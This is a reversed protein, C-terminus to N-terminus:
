ANAEQWARTIREFGPLVADIPNRECEFCLAKLNKARELAFELITWTAELVDVGHDDEVFREGSLEFPKGGAVHMEVVREFPFGDLATLPDHGMVHQYVALHAVDLLLGSDAREGVRAYYDALHLDGVFVHAPPNEPLVEFGTAERVRVLNDGMVDASEAVLIPPMLVGHGRDRAGVHWLGADGCLWAAGISTALAKTRVLWSETIDEAEELNVDLFHYTTKGGNTVWRRTDEDVGRELDAGVELFGAFEPHARALENPDLGGHRRAGFETSVGVGLVPLERVRDSFLKM